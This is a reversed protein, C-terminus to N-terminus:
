ISIPQEITKTRNFILYVVYFHIILFFDLFLIYWPWNGIILPNDADPKARLFMYNADLFYDLTGIVPLILQSFLFIHLWSMKRIRMRHRYTLYLASLIIGGHSIYYEFLLIEGSGQTLEPTLLSHFAGPIGWYMLLEYGLQTPFLMVIGSLWGSISCLQLPLSTRLSWQDEAILYPHILIAVALFLLGSIKRIPDVTAPYYRSVWLVVVMIALTTLIMIWWLATGPQILLDLLM